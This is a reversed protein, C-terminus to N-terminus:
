HNSKQEDDVKEAAENTAFERIQLFLSGLREQLDANWEGHLELVERIDGWIPPGPTGSM